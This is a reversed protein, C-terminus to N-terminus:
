DGYKLHHMYRYYSDHVEDDVFTTIADHSIINQEFLIRIRAGEWSFRFGMADEKDGGGYRTELWTRFRDSDTTSTKIEISHLKDEWFYLKVSKLPIGDLEVLDAEPVWRIMRQSKGSRRIGDMSDPPYGLRLGLIGNDTDLTSQATLVGSFLMPVVFLSFLFTKIMRM